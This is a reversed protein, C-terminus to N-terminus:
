IVCVRVEGCWVCWGTRVDWSDGEVQLGNGGGVDEGDEGGAVKM